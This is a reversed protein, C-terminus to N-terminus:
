DKAHAYIYLLSRWGYVITIITDGLFLSGSGAILMTKHTVVPQARYLGCINGHHRHRWPRRLPRVIDLCKSRGRPHFVAESHGSGGGNSRKYKSTYLFEQLLQFLYKRNHEFIGLNIQGPVEQVLHRLHKQTGLLTELQFGINKKGGSQLLLLTKKM